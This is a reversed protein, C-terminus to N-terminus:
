LNCFREILFDRNFLEDETFSGLYARLTVEEFSFFLQCVLHVFLYFAVLFKPFQNLHILSKSDFNESEVVFSSFLSEFFMGM